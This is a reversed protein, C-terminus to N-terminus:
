EFEFGEVEREKKVRELVAAEVAQAAQEWKEKDTSEKYTDAHESGWYGLHAIEGLTKPEPTKKPLIRWDKETFHELAFAFTASVSGGENLFHTLVSNEFQIHSSDWRDCTARLEPNERMEKLVDLLDMGSEM